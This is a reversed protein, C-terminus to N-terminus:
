LLCAVQFSKRSFSSASLRPLIKYVKHLDKYLCSQYSRVRFSHTPNNNKEALADELQLLAKIQLEM